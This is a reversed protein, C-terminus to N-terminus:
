EISGILMRETSRLHRLHRVRVLAEKGSRTLMEPGEGLRAKAFRALLVADTAIKADGEQERKDRRQDRCGKAEGL